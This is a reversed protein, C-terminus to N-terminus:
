CSGMVFARECWLGDCEERRFDELAIRWPSSCAIAATWMFDECSTILGAGM